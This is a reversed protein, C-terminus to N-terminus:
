ASEQVSEAVLAWPRESCFSLLLPYSVRLELFPYNLYADGYSDFLERPLWSGLRHGRCVLM